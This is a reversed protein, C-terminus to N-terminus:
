YITEPNHADCMYEARYHLVAVCIPNDADGDTDIDTSDLQITNTISALEAHAHVTKEVALCWTDLVDQPTDNGKTVIKISVSVARQEANDMSELTAQEATAYVCAFPIDDASPPSFPTNFVSLGSGIADLAVVFANRITTRPHTM